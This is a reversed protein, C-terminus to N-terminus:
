KNLKLNKLWFSFILVLRKLNRWENQREYPHKYIYWLMFSIFKLESLFNSPLYIDDYEDIEYNCNTM